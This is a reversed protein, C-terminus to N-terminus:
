SRETHKSKKRKKKRKNSGNGEPREVEAGEMEKRKRSTDSNDTGDSRIFCSVFFGNTADHDPSCRILSSADAPNDMENPLGRRPWTPLVDQQPALEFKGALAETCKLAERVVHENEIAHISCTSYVIKVVSPFKM